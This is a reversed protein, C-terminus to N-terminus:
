TAVCHVVYKVHMLCLNVSTFLVEAGRVQPYATELAMIRHYKLVLYVWFINGESSSFFFFLFFSSLILTSFVVCLCCSRGDTILAVSPPDLREFQDCVSGDM